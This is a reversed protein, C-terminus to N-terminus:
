AGLLEEKSYGLSRLDQYLVLAYDRRIPEIAGMTVASFVNDTGIREQLIGLAQTLGNFPRPKCHLTFHDHILKCRRCRWREGQPGNNRILFWRSAAISRLVRDQEPTYVGNQPRLFRLVEADVVEWESPLDPLGPLRPDLISPGPDFGNAHRPGLM